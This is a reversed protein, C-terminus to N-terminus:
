DKLLVNSLVSTYKDNTENRKSNLSDILELHSSEIETMLSFLYNKKSNSNIYFKEINFQSLFGRFKKGNPSEPDYDNIAIVPILNRSASILGHLNESIVLDCKSMENELSVHDSPIILKSQIGKKLMEKMIIQSSQFDGKWQRTIIFNYRVNGNKHKHFNALDETIYSKLPNDGSTYVVGVTEVKNDRQEVEWSSMAIDPIIEANVGLELLTKLSSEDRVIVLDASSFIKQADNKLQEPVRGITPGLIITKLGESQAIDLEFLLSRIKSIWKENFYGGGCMIYADYNSFSKKLSDKEKHSKHNFYWESDSVRKTLRDMVKSYLTVSDNFSRFKFGTNGLDVHRHLTYDIETNGNKHSISDSKSYTLIRFESNPVIRNIINVTSALILDDGINGYGWGGSLIFKM